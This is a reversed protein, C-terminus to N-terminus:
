RAAIIRAVEENVPEAPRELENATEVSIVLTNNTTQNVQVGLQIEPRAFETAFGREL